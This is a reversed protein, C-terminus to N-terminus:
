KRLFSDNKRPFYRSGSRTGTVDVDAGMPAQGGFFMAQGNDMQNLYVWASLTFPKRYLDMGGADVFTEKKDKKFGKGNKGDVIQATGQIPLMKGTIENKVEKDTAGEFTIYALPDQLAM